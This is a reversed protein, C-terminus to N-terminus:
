VTSGGSSGGASKLSKDSSKERLGAEDVTSAECEVEGDAHHGKSKGSLKGEDEETALPAEEFRTGLREPGFALLVVIVVVAISSVIAM